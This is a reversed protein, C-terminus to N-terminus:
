VTTLIEHTIYFINDALDCSKNNRLFGYFDYIPDSNAELIYEKDIHIYPSGIFVFRLRNQHKPSFLDSGVIETKTRIRLKILELASESTINGCEDIIM